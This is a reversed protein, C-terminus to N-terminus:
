KLSDLFAIVDARKAPDALKFTMKSVGTSDGSTTHLFATADTLYKDLTDDNWAFGKAAAAKFADSYAFGEFKGPGRAVVGFLNPGVKAPADKAANHCAVCLTKVIKEGSAVDGAAFANTSVFAAVAAAALGTVIKNM